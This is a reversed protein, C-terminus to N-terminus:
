ISDKREYLTVVEGNVERGIFEIDKDGFRWSDPAVMHIKTVIWLKAKPFHLVVVSLFSSIPITERYEPQEPMMEEKISQPIGASVVGITLLLVTMLIKM